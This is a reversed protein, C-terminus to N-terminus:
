SFGDTGADTQTENVAATNGGSTSIEEANVVSSDALGGCYLGVTCLVAMWKKKNEIM